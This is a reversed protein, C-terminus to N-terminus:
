ELHAFTPLYILNDSWFMDSCTEFPFFPGSCMFPYVGDTRLHKDCKIKIDVKVM